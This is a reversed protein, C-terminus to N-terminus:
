DAYRGGRSEILRNVLAQTGKECVLQASYLDRAANVQATFSRNFPMAKVKRKCVKTPIRLQHDITTDSLFAAGNDFLPMLRYRGQSAVVAINYMHRDENLILADFELLCTLWEGFNKIGTVRTVLAVTREIKKRTDVAGWWDASPAGSAQQILRELPLLTEGPSLFDRCVCGTFRAGDSVIGCPSYDTIPAFKGISTRHAVRSAWVEAFAEYGLTDAKIFEGGKLWKLQNGKSTASQRVREKELVKIVRVGEGFIGMSVQETSQPVGPLVVTTLEGRKLRLYGGSRVIVANTRTAGAIFDTARVFPLRYLKGDVALEYLVGSQKDVLKRKLEVTM